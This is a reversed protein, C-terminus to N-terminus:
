RLHKCHLGGKVVRWRRIGRVETSTISARCAEVRRDIDAEARRDLVPARAPSGRSPQAMVGRPGKMMGASKASGFPSGKAPPTEAGLLGM